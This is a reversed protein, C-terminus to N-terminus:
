KVGYEKELTEIMVMEWEYAEDESLFINEYNSYKWEGDVETLNRPIKNIPVEAFHISVDQWPTVCVNCGYVTSPYREGKRKALFEILIFPLIRTWNKLM